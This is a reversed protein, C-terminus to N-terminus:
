ADLRNTFTDWASTDTKPVAEPPSPRGLRLWEDHEDEWKHPKEIYYLADQPTDFAGAAALIHGFEIVQDPRMIWPQPPADVGGYAALLRNAAASLSEGRDKATTMAADWIRDPMRLSRLPQRAMM